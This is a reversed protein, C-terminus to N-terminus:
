SLTRTSLDGHCCWRICINIYLYDAYIHVQPWLFCAISTGTCRNGHAARRLDFSRRSPSFSQWTWQTTCIIYFIYLMSGPGDMSVYIQAVLKKQELGNTKTVNQFFARKSLFHELCAKESGWLRDMDCQYVHACRQCEGTWLVRRFHRLYHMKARTFVRCTIMAGANLRRAIRCLRGIYDEDSWCAWGSSACSHHNRAHLTAEIQNSWISLIVWLKVELM